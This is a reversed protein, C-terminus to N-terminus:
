AIDVIQEVPLRSTRPAGTDAPDIMGLRLVLCPYGASAIMARLAQRTAIVEIPASHPVVSVGYETATLWGASLAEGARLWALPEDASGYLMVFVAAKDHEASVPLEGHHGFDRGPVTTQTARAPIAADPVGTGAPRAAGTWYALEAQWGPDAAESRQAHDAAAALELVQDPRLTHLATEQAEVAATIAALADPDVPTGTVPRRDTYRLPITRLHLASPPDVPARGEIHLRSLLDPGADRPMRTVTVHWGQAAAAVRAHHLAVGCSLTALRADPDSVQLIRSPVLHLDLTDATLRWRWPQTNHISPAYGAASAAEALAHTVLQPDTPHTPADSDM